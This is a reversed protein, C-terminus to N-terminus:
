CGAKERLWCCWAIYLLVIKVHAFIGMIINGGFKLNIPAEV